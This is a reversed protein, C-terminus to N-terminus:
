NSTTDTAAVTEKLIKTRTIKIKLSAVIIQVPVQIDSADDLPNCKKKEKRLPLMTFVRTQFWLM